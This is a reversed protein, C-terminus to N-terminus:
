RSGVDNGLIRNMAKRMLALSNVMIIAVPDYRSSVARIM